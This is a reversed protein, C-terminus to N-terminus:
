SEKPICLKGVHWSPVWGRDGNEKIVYVWHHYKKYVHVVDDKMLELEEDDKNVKAGRFDKLAVGKTAKSVISSPLVPPVVSVSAGVLTTSNHTGYSSRAETMAAALPVSTELVCGAPIVAKVSARTCIGKGDTDRQVTMWKPNERSLIIFMDGPAVSFEGERPADYPHIALGYGEAKPLPGDEIQPAPTATQTTEVSTQAPLDNATSGAGSTSKDLLRAAKRALRRPSPRDKALALKFVPDKSKAKFAEFVALPKEDWSLCREVRGDEVDYSISLVYDDESANNVHHKQLAGRIVTATLDHNTVRHKLTKPDLDAHNSRGITSSGSAKSAPSSTRTSSTPTVQSHSRRRPTGEVSNNDDPEELTWQFKPHVNLSETDPYRDHPQKLSARLANFNDIFSELTTNLTKVDQELSQIRIAQRKVTDELAEFANQAPTVDMNSSGGLGITTSTNGNNDREGKWREHEEKHKGDGEYYRRQNPSPPPTLTRVMPPKLAGPTTLTSRASSPNTSSSGRLGSM